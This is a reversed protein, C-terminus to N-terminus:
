AAGDEVDKRAPSQRGDLAAESYAWALAAFDDGILSQVVEFGIPSWGLMDGESDPTVSVLCKKVLSALVGKKQPTTMDGVKRADLWVWTTLDHPGTAQKPAGNTVTDECHAFAWLLHQEPVTLGVLVVLVDDDTPTLIASNNTVPLDDPDIGFHNSEDRKMDDSTLPTDDARADAIDADLADAAPMADFMAVLDAHSTKETALRVPARCASRQHRGQDHHEPRDNRTETSAPPDGPSM